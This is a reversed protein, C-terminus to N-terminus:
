SEPTAEETGEEGGEAEMFPQSFQLEAPVEVAVWAGDEVVNVGIEGAGCEGLGELGDCSLTGTLGPYETTNRIAAILAERDIVLNGADDLVAVEAVANLIISAADFAHYHFPGLDDADVGYKALYAADFTAAGEVNLFSSTDAFSTYSGEAAEGALDLYTQTFVGDDSFFVANELGVEQMQNVLLAAPGEYGGFFIAEPAAEAVTTLVATYDQEEPNIVEYAVVTGTIREFEAVVVDALGKGYDSNDHIVALQTVGLEQYIFRADVAGQAGDTFAVRNVVDRGNATFAVATSSASVMPIRADQYVESAAISAGSCVHGVVAVTQPDSAFQNAVTTADTPDCRDDQVDMAVQFGQIGGMANVYDAALLAGNAIDQGPEPVVNSLDTAVGIKISEGAAVVVQTADSQAPLVSSNPIGNAYVPAAAVLVVLLVALYRFRKTFM